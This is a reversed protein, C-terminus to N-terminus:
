RLSSQALAAEVRAEESGFVEADLLETLVDLPLGHESLLLEETMSAAEEFRELMLLAHIAGLRHHTADQPPRDLVLFRLDQWGRARGAQDRPPIHDTFLQTRWLEQVRPPLKALNERAQVGALHEEASDTWHGLWDARGASRWRIALDDPHAEALLAWAEQELETRELHPKSGGARLAEAYMVTLDHLERLPKQRAGGETADLQARVRVLNEGLAEAVEDQCTYKALMERTAAAFGARRMSRFADVSREANVWHAVTQTWHDRATTSVVTGMWQEDSRLAEYFATVEALQKGDEPELRARGLVSAVLALSVFQEEPLAELVARLRERAARKKGLRADAWVVLLEAELPTPLTVYSFRDPLTPDYTTALALEVADPPLVKALRPRNRQEQRERRRTDREALSRQYQPLKLMELSQHLWQGAPAYAQQELAYRGAIHLVPASRPFREAIGMIVDQHEEWNANTLSLAVLLDIANKERLPSEAERELLSAALGQAVNPQRRLVGLEVSHLWRCWNDLSYGEPWERQDISRARLERSFERMLTNQKNSELTLLTERILAENALKTYGDELSLRYFETLQDIAVFYERIVNMDDGVGFLLEGEARAQEAQGLRSYLLGTRQIWRADAPGSARLIQLAGIAAELEGGAEAERAYQDVIELEVTPRAAAAALIQLRQNPHNDVNFFALAREPERLELALTAARAFMGADAHAEVIGLLIDDTQAEGSRLRDFAERAEANRGLRLCLQGKRDLLEGDYPRLALSEEIPELAKEYQQFHAFLDSLLLVSHQDFPDRRVQQQLGSLEEAWGSSPTAEVYLELADDRLRPSEWAALAHARAEARRDLALACHAAALNAEGDEPRLRLVRRWHKFALGVKKWEQFRIAVEILAEANESEANAALELCACAEEIQDAKYHVSSLDLRLDFARRPLLKVAREYEQIAARFRENKAHWEALGVRAQHDQPRAEILEEWAGAALAYRQQKMAARVRTLHAGRDTKDEGVAEEAEKRAFEYETDSSLTGLYTTVAQSSLEWEPADTATRRLEPRAEEARGLDLLMLALRYRVGAEQPAQELVARWCRMADDTRALSAWTDGLEALSLPREMFREEAASLVQVGQDFLDVRVLFKALDVHRHVANPELEVARRYQAEAREVEGLGHWRRGIRYALAADTPRLAVMRDWHEEARDFRDDGAFLDGLTFLLESDEPRRIHLRQLEAIEAELDGARRALQRLRSSLSSDDPYREVCDALLTLAEDHEGTRELALALFERTALDSPAGEAQTRLKGTLETLRGGREYLKLLADRLEDARWHGRRLGGLSEEYAAMALDNESLQELQEGLEALLECRDAPGYAQSGLAEQLLESSGRHFGADSLRAAVDLVLRPDAMDLAALRELTQRAGARDGDTLQVAALRDHLDLAFEADDGVKDLAQEMAARGGARDGADLRLEALLLLGRGELNELESLIAMAEDHAGREGHLRAALIRSERSDDLSELFSEFTGQTRLRVVLQDFVTANYPSRALYRRYNDLDDQASAPCAFAVMALTALALSRIM